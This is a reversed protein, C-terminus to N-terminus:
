LPGYLSYELSQPGYARQQQSEIRGIFWSFLCLCCRFLHATTYELVIKHVVPPPGYDRVGARPILFERKM